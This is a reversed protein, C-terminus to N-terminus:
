RREEISKSLFTADATARAVSQDAEKKFKEVNNSGAEFTCRSTKRTGKKKPRSKLASIRVDLRLCRHDNGLIIDSTAELDRVDMWPRTTCLFYDIIRRVGGQEHTWQKEFQKRFFTNLTRLRESTAWAAFTKGRENGSAAIDLSGMLIKLAKSESSQM